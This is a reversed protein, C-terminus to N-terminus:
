IVVLDLRWEIRDLREGMTDLRLSLIAFQGATTADHHSVQQELTTMRRGLDRVEDRLSDIKADLRRLFVLM